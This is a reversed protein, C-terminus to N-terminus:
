RDYILPYILQDIRQVSSRSPPRHHRGLGLPHAPYPRTFREPEPTAARVEYLNALNPTSLPDERRGLDDINKVNLRTSFSTLGALRSRCTAGGLREGQQKKQVRSGTRRTSNGRRWVFNRRHVNTTSIVTSEIDTSETIEAAEVTTLPGSRTSRPPYTPDRPVWAPAGLYSARTLLDHLATPLQYCM